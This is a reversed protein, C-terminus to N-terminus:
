LESIIQKFKSSTKSIESIRKQLNNEKQRLGFKEKQIVRRLEEPSNLLSKINTLNELEKDLKLDKNQTYDLIKNINNKTEQKLEANILTKAIRIIKNINKQIEKIYRSQNSIFESILKKDELNGSIDDIYVSKENLKRKENIIINYYLSHIKTYTKIIAAENLKFIKKKINELFSPKIKILKIVEKDSKLEELLSNILDKSYNQKKLDKKIEDVKFGLKLSKIFSLKFEKKFNKGLETKM